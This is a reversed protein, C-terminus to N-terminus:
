NFATVKLVQIIYKPNIYTLFSSGLEFEDHNVIGLPLDKPLDSFALAYATILLLPIIIQM